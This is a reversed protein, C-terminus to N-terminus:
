YTVSNADSDSMLVTPWNKNGEAIWKNTDKLWSQKIKKDYNLYLKGDEITWQKPDGKATIGHGVAWACYGGYQPAYKDPDKLFLEKNSASSFRWTAGQHELSFKSSGKVPKGETFYAVPDYGAVAKNSFRGTYIPPQAIATVTLLTLLLALILKM